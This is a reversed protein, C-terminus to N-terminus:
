HCWSRLLACYVLWVKIYPVSYKLPITDPYLDMLIDVDKQLIVRLPNITEFTLSLAQAALYSLPAPTFNDDWTFDEAVCRRDNEAISTRMVPATEYALRTNKSVVYPIKM